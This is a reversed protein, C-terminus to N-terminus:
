KQPAKIIKLRKELMETVKPVIYGKTKEDKEKEIVTKIAERYTKVREPTISNPDFVYRLMMLLLARYARGLEEIGKLRENESELEKIRKKARRLREYYRYYNVKREKGM